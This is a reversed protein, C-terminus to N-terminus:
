RSGLRIKEADPYVDEALEKMVLAFEQKRRHKSVTM